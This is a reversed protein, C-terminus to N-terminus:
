IVGGGGGLGLGYLSTLTVAKNTNGACPFTSYLSSDLPYKNLLEFFRNIIMESKDLSCFKIICKGYHIIRKVTTKLSWDDHNGIFAFRRSHLDFMCKKIKEWHDRQESPDDPMGFLPFVDVHLVRGDIGKAFIEPHLAPSHKDFKCFSIYFKENIQDKLTDLFIDLQELPIGIDADSDWPIPGGHRVAGLASGCLLYYKLDSKKCIRDVESLIETEIKQVENLGISKMIKEKGIFLAKM